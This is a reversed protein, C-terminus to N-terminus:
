YASYILGLALSSTNASKEAKYGLHIAKPEWINITALFFALVSCSHSINLFVCSKSNLLGPTLDLEPVLKGDKRFDFESM